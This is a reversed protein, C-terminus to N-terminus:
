DYTSETKGDWKKMHRSMARDGLGHQEAEALKFQMGFIRLLEPLSKSTIGHTKALKSCLKDFTVDIDNCQFLVSEEFSAPEKRENQNIVSTKKVRVKKEEAIKGSVAVICYVFDQTSGKKTDLWGTEGKYAGRKFYISKGKRTEYKSTAM